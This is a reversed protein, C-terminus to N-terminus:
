RQSRLTEAVGFSRVVPLSSQSVAAPRSHRDFSMRPPLESMQQGFFLALVLGFQWIPPPVPSPPLGPEVVAATVVPPAVVDDTVLVEAAVVVDVPVELALLELEEDLEVLVEVPVLVLVPVPGQDQV